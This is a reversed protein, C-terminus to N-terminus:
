PKKKGGSEAFGSCTAAKTKDYIQNCDLVRMDM